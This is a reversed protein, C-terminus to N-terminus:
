PNTKPLRAVVILEEGSLDFETHKELLGITISDLPAIVSGDESRSMMAHPMNGLLRSWFKEDLFNPHKRGWLEHWRNPRAKRFADCGNPTIVIMLGGKDGLITRAENFSNEPSPVHEFVHSSFFIDFDSPLGEACYHADVGLKTRGFDCRPRSVEVGSAV